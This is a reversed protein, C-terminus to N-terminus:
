GITILRDNDGKKIKIGDEVNVCHPNESLITKSIDLRNINKYGIGEAEDIPVLFTNAKYVDYDKIESYENPNTIDSNFDAFCVKKIEKCLNVKFTKETYQGAWADDISDQFDEYFLGIQSACSIGLVSNIAIFAIVIFIVIMFIAFIMGFSMGMMQQGRKRVMM